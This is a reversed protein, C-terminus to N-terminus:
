QRSKLYQAIMQEVQAPNTIGKMRAMALAADKYTGSQLLSMYQQFEPNNAAMANILQNPSQGNKILTMLSDLQQKQAHAKLVM